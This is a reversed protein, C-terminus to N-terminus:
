KEQHLEYDIYNITEELLELTISMMFELYVIMREETYGCATSCISIFNIFRSETEILIQKKSPMKSNAIKEEKYIMILDEAIQTLRSKTDFDLEMFTVM